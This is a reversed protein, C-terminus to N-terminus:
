NCKSYIIFYKLYLNFSEGTMWGSPHAAIATGTPTGKAMHDRERVRPFIMFPSISTGIACITACLTVLSRREGSTIKSVKKEGQSCIIKKPIHLTTIGTEDGM